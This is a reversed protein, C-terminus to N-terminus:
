QDIGPDVYEIVKGNATITNITYGPLLLMTVWQSERTKNHLQYSANGDVYGKQANVSLRVYQNLLDIDPYDTEDDVSVSYVM